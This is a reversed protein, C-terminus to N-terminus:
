FRNFMTFFIKGGMVGFSLVSTKTITKSMSGGVKVFFLIEPISFSFQGSSSEASDIPFEGCSFAAAATVLEFPIM